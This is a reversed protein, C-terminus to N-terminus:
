DGDLEPREMAVYTLACMGPAISKALKQEGRASIKALRDGDRCGHRSKEGARGPRLRRGGRPHLHRNLIVRHEQM